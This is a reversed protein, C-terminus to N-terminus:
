KLNSKWYALKEKFPREPRYPLQVIESDTNRNARLKELTEVTKELLLPDKSRDLLKRLRGAVTAPAQLAVLGDLAKLPVWQAKGGHYNSPDEIAGLLADIAGPPNLKAVTLVAEARVAPQQV